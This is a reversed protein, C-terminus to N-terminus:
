LARRLADMEAGAIMNWAGRKGQLALSSQRSWPPGNANHRSLRRAASGSRLACLSM